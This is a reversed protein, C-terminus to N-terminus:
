VFGAAQLSAMTIPEGKPKGTTGSRLRRLYHVLQKSLIDAELNVRDGPKRDALTTLSLTTPILAVDFTTDTLGALTLSVGDIAISGKPALYDLLGPPPTVTIRYEAPTNTVATVTGVGDVHGQMFHGGMPQTPLVAPELNVPDGVKLSGLTTVALTEAIVDFALTQATPEVVTLCVGAVCISDGHAPTYGGFPTWGSRDIVLRVGFPNRDLRAVRGKAQVIGTFM